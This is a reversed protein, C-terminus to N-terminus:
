FHISHKWEQFLLFHITIHICLMQQMWTEYRHSSPPCAPRTSAKTTQTLSRTERGTRSSWRYLKTCGSQCVRRDCCPCVDPWWYWSRWIQTLVIDNISCKIWSQWLHRKILVCILIQSHHFFLFYILTTFFLIRQHLSSVRVSQVYKSQLHELGEPSILPGLEEREVQKVLEPHGMMDPSGFWSQWGRM